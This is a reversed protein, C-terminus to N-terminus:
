GALKQAGRVLRGPRRPHGRRQCVDRHRARVHAPLRRSTAAPAQGGRAPRLGHVPLHLRLQDFDVVVMDAKYGPALVGRDRLGSRPRPTAASAACSGSSRCVTPGTARGTRSCRPRSAPTASRGSTRAAMPSGPFCTSTPRLMEGIADLSATSGTSCRTTSSGTGTTPSCCTSALDAPDRGDRAARAAVSMSPHPEYDPPDGLEFIRDFDTAFGGRHEGLEALM